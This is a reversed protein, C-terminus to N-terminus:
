RRSGRPRVVTSRDDLLDSACSAGVANTTVFSAAYATCGVGGVGGNALQLPNSYTAHTTNSTAASLWTPHQSSQLVDRLRLKAQTPSPHWRSWLMLPQHGM